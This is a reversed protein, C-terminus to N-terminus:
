GLAPSTEVQSKFESMGYLVPKLVLLFEIRVMMILIETKLIFFINM